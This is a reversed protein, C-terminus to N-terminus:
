YNAVTSRPLVRTIGQSYHKMFVALRFIEDGFDKLHHDSSYLERVKSKRQRRSHNQTTKPLNIGWKASIGKWLCLFFVLRAVELVM